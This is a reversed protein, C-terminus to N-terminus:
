LIENIVENFNKNCTWSIIVRIENNYNIVDHPVDNRIITPVRLVHEFDLELDSTVFGIM